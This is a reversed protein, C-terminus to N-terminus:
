LAAPQTLSGDLAPDTMSDEGTELHGAFRAQFKPDVETEITIDYWGYFKALSYFENISKNADVSRRTTQQTYYDFLRLPVSVSNTNTVELYIGKGKIDYTIQTQLNAAVTGFSGKFVRYFGNPGFVLLDYENLSITAYNWTDSVETNPAVSYTRPAFQGSSSYVQYVAAVVGQNAFHIQFENQGSIVAGSVSCVYPVARAPRIGSEQQPM